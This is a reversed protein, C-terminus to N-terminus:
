FRPPITSFSNTYIDCTLTSRSSPDSRRAPCGASVFGSTNVTWEPIFSVFGSMNTTM